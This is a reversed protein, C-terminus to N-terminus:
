ARAARRAPTVVGSRGTAGKGPFLYLADDDEVEAADTSFWRVFWADALEGLVARSTSPNAVLRTRVRPEDDVADLVTLTLRLRGADAEDCLFAVLGLDADLRERIGAVPKVRRPPPAVGPPLRLDLLVSAEPAGGQVARDERTVPVGLAASRLAHLRRVDDGSRAERLAHFEHGVTPGTDQQTLDMPHRGVGGDQSRFADLVEQRRDRSPEIVARARETWSSRLRWLGLPWESSLEFTRWDLLARERGRLTWEVVGQGGVDVEDLWAADCRVEPTTETLRLDAVPRTGVNRFALKQRRSTGRVVRLEGGPDTGILALRPRRGLKAFLDVLLVAALLALAIRAIPEGAQFGASAALMALAIVVQGRQTLELAHQPKKPPTTTDRDM